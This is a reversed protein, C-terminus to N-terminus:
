EIKNLIGIWIQASSEQPYLLVQILMEVPAQM